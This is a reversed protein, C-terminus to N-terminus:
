HSFAFLLPSFSGRQLYEPLQCRFIVRVYQRSQPHSPIDVKCSWTWHCHSSCKWSRPALSSWQSHTFCLVDWALRSFSCRVSSNWYTLQRAWLRDFQNKSQNSDLAKSYVHGHVWGLAMLKVCPSWLQVISCDIYTQSGQKIPDVPPPLGNVATFTAQVCCATFICNAHRRWVKIM